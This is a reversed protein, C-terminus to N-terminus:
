EPEILGYGGDVREYVVNITGTEANKFIYFGHGLYGLADIADDVTMPPMPFRKSKVLRTPVPNQPAEDVEAPTEVVATSDFSSRPHKEQRREKYKVLNRTLKDAVADIASYLNETREEARIVSGVVFVTVEIVQTFHVRPNKSVSLHVDVSTVFQKFVDVAGGIKDTVYSRISDTVQINDGTIKLTYVGRGTETPPAESQAMQITTTSLASPVNSRVQLAHGVFQSSTSFLSSSM